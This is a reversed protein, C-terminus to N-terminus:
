IDKFTAESREAVAQPLLPQEKEASAAHTFEHGSVQSRATQSERQAPPSDATKERPQFALASGM